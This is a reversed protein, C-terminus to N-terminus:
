LQVILVPGAGTQATGCEGAIEGIPTDPRNAHIPEDRGLASGRCATSAM